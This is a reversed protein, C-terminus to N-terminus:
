DIGLRANAIEGLRGQIQDVYGGLQRRWRCLRRCRLRLAPSHANINGERYTLNRRSTGGKGRVTSDSDAPTDLCVSEAWNEWHRRRSLRNLKPRPPNEVEM